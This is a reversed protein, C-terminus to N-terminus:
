KKLPSTSVGSARLPVSFQPMQIEKDGQRIKITVRVGAPLSTNDEANWSDEWDSSNGNEDVGMYELKIESVDPDLVFEKGEEEKMFFLAEVLKLGGTDVFIKIRKLGPLDELREGEDTSTTIFSLSDTKGDFAVFTKEDKQVAFPYAGRLLFSTRDVVVRMKQAIEQKGRGQEESRHALRIASFVIGLLLITLTVAFIIELLTFGSNRQRM